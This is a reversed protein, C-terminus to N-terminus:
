ATYPEEEEEDEPEELEIDGVADPVDEDLKNKICEDIQDQITVNPGLAAICAFMEDAQQALRAAQEAENPVEVKEWVGSPWQYQTGDANYGNARNWTEMKENFNKWMASEVWGSLPGLMGIPGKMENMYIDRMKETIPAVYPGMSPNDGGAVAAIQEFSLVFM